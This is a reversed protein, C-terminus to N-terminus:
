LDSAGAGRAEWAAFSMIRANELAQRIQSATLGAEPAAHEVEWGFNIGSIAPDDTAITALLG